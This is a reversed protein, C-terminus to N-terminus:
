YEGCDIRLDGNDDIVQFNNLYVSGNYKVEFANKRNNENFGNGISFLTATSSKIIDALLQNDSTISLNYIGSAHEARNTTKTGWGEVHSYDGLAETYNGEAHSAIRTAKTQSGEAHSGYGSSKTSLGEAHSSQGSAVTMSGEAHSYDGYTETNTGEAHSCDGYTKARIGEAHSYLGNTTSGSGEAHSGDGNATTNSGEAHSYNGNATNREYDNFVEGVIKNINNKIFQYKGVGGIQKIEQTDGSSEIITSIFPAQSNYNIALEGVKIRDLTPLKGLEKSRAHLLHQLENEM